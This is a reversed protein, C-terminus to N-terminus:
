FLISDVVGLTVQSHCSPGFARIERFTLLSESLDENPGTGVVTM